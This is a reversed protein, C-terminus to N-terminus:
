ARDIDKESVAKEKALKILRKALNIYDTVIQRVNEDYKTKNRFLIDHKNQMLM